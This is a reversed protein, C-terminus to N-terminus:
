FRNFPVIDAERRQSQMILYLFGGIIIALPVTQWGLSVVRYTNDSENVWSQNLAIDFLGQSTDSGTLVLSLIVYLLAGIFIIAIGMLVAYLGAKSNKLSRNM